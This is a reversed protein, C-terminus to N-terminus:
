YHKDLLVSFEVGNNKRGSLRSESIVELSKGKSNTQDFHCIRNVECM